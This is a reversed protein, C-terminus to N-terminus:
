WRGTSGVLADLAAIGTAPERVLSLPGRLAVLGAVRHPVGGGQVFRELAERDGAWQIHCLPPLVHTLSRLLEGRRRPCEIGPSVLDTVLLRPVPVGDSRDRVTQCLFAHGVPCSRALQAHPAAYYLYDDHADYVRTGGHTQILILFRGGEVLWTVVDSTPHISESVFSPGRLVDPHISQIEVCLSGCAFASPEDCM